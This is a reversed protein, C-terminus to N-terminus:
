FALTNGDQKNFRSLSFSELLLDHKNQTILEAVLKGGIVSTLVGTDALGTIVYASKMEPIKGIIPLKDPAVARLGAWERLIAAKRLAPFLKATESCIFQIVEYTSDTDFGVTEKTGGSIINGARDQFVAIKDLVINHVIDPLPETAIGQGKLPVVPIDVGAMNGVESTWPGAAIVLSSTYIIFDSTKIASIHDEKRTFNELQTYNFIEAGNQMSKEYLAAALKLPNVHYQNPKYIAGLYDPSIAPELELLENQGLLSVDYGVKKEEHVREEASALDVSSQYVFLLGKENLELDINEEDAFDKITELGAVGLKKMDPMSIPYVDPALCGFTAGSAKSFLGDRELVLVNYNGDKSCFYGCALGALGAGIIVIDM